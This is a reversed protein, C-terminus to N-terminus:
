PLRRGRRLAEFKDRYASAGDRQGHQRLWEVAADIESDLGDCTGYRHAQKLFGPIDGQQFMERLLDRIELPCALGFKFVLSLLENIRHSVSLKRLGLQIVDTWGDITQGNRKLLRIANAVEGKKCMSVVADYSFSVPQSPTLNLRFDEIV